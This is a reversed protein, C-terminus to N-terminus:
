VSMTPSTCYNTILFLFITWISVIKLYITCGDTVGYRNCNKKEIICYKYSVDRIRLDTTMNDSYMGSHQASMFAKATKRADKQESILMNLDIHGGGLSLLKVGSRIFCYILQTKVSITFM